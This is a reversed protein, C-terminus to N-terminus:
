YLEDYATRGCRCRVTRSAIRFEASLNPYTHLGFLGAGNYMCRQHRQKPWNLTVSWEGLNGGAGGVGGDGGDGGGGDGGRGDGGAWAERHM